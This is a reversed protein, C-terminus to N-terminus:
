FAASRDFVLNRDCSDSLTELMVALSAALSGAFKQEGNCTITVAKTVDVLEPSLFVTFGEPEHRQVRITVTQGVIEAEVLMKEAPRDCRLWYIGHVPLRGDGPPFGPEVLAEWTVARPFTTRRRALLWRAAAQPEGAAFAHGLKPLCRFDVEYDGPHTARLEDLLKAAFVYSHPLCNRDLSGTTYYLPVHRVNPILGHQVETIDAEDDTQQADNFLVGHFPMGGAFLQPHRGCLWWTGTGGMSFGAVFVRDPDVDYTRKAMEILTLVFREGEATCWADHVLRIAQPYVGMLKHKALVSSWTGQAESKDGAGEGGGHLGILLGTKPGARVSPANAVSYWAKGWRTEIPKAPDLKRGHARAAKWLIARTEAFVGEPLPDLARARELLAAREQPEWDAFRTAPRAAFWDDALTEIAKRKAADLPAAAPAVQPEPPAEQGPGQVGAPLLAIALFGALVVIM